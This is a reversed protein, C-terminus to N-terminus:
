RQVQKNSRSRVQSTTDDLSGPTEPEIVAGGLLIFSMDSGAAQANGHCGMCGGMLYGKGNYYTSDFGPYPFTTSPCYTVGNSDTSTSTPCAYDSILGHYLYNSTSGKAYGFSQQNGSFFALSYDTEVVSNALYYTAADNGTYVEGPPKDIPQWQVNILKYYLWPSNPFQQQSSYAAIASHAAQNVAIVEVPIDHPRRQLCIIGQPSAFGATDTNRYYLQDGPNCNAPTSSPDVAVNYAPDFSEITFSSSDTSSPTSSITPDYPEDGPAAVVNGNVDEVGTGDSTLINDAQEFTAFIFYPANETKHIIHLAVMGFTADVHCPTGGNDLYYRATTTRFRGSATESSTLLRWASKLEVTGAPFSVYQSSGDPPTQKKTTVYTATDSFPPMESQIPNRLNGQPYPNAWKNKVIYDWETRNAKALFLIQQGPGPSDPAVGAFMENLGIESIEDLNVYPTSSSARTCAPILGTVTGVKFPAYYYVPGADYDDFYDSPLTKSRNGPFIEVKHRYTEWTLPGQYNPDGYAEDFDPTDRKGSAAPWTLAIFEQWAFVAAETLDACQAGAGASCSLPTVDACTGNSPVPYSAGIADPLCPSIVVTPTDAYVADSGSLFAVIPLLSGLMNRSM